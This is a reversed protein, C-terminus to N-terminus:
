VGGWRLREVIFELRKVLQEAAVALVEADVAARVLRTRDELEDTASSSLADVARSAALRLAAAHARAVDLSHSLRLLRNQREAETM